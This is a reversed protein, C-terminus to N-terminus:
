NPFNVFFFLCFILLPAIELRIGCHSTALSEQGPGQDLCLNLLDLLLGLMQKQELPIARLQMLRYLQNVAPSFKASPQQQEAARQKAVDAQAKGGGSSEDESIDSFAAAAEKAKNQQQQQQVLENQNTTLLRVLLASSLPFRRIFQSLAALSVAKGGRQSSRLRESGIAM